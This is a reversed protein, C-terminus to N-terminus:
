SRCVAIFDLARDLDCAGEPRLDFDSSAIAPTFRDYFPKTLRLAKHVRDWGVNLALEHLRLKRAHYLGLLEVSEFHPALLERYERVTYERLHWPNESKEAGPPALTLRNPTSIYAVAALRAFRGLLEAPDPVHEITQLFVIADSPRDYAEVLDRAFSLNPRRYRLRAHEHAEPNADVGVVEAATAALVDSGYGEGCALDAVTAGRVREAIWEYVVLHRRYWYNEEPVDPLTREGTLSLPPVGAPQNEQVHLQTL